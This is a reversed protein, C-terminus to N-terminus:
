TRTWAPWLWPIEQPATAPPAALRAHAEELRRPLGAVRGAPPQPLLSWYNKIAELAPEGIPILREKKGKGRVRVLRENWDIDQGALGCLESIRLGCSYITELVAVDRRCALAAAATDSAIRARRRCSSSRRPWCIRGDAAADPVQAAAQRAKPLPLNKIPSAAVRGTGFRPFPLLHALRLLPAPHRRPELNHRGLFRLYARFDDRQLKEWAPPQQREEQHWRMSNWCRRATTASRTPRPAATRPWTSSSSRSGSTTPPKREIAPRLDTVAPHDENSSRIMCGTPRLTSARNLDRTNNPLPVRFVCSKVQASRTWTQGLRGRAPFEFTVKGTDDM